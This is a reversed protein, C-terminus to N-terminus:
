DTFVSSDKGRKNNSVMDHPSLSIIVLSAFKECLRFSSAEAESKVAGDNTVVAEYVVSYVRNM